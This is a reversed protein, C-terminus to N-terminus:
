LGGWRTFPWVIADARGIIMDRSVADFSRSDISKDLRRNDGMVFYHNIEVLYPGYNGNDILHDTYMEQKLKGNVYLQRNHIEVTDGAKAVIRKVLRLTKPEAPDNLIVVDGVRPPHIHYILKNV